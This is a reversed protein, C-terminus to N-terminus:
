REEGTPLTYPYLKILEDLTLKAEEETLDRQYVIRLNKNGYEFMKTDRILQPRTGLQNQIYVLYAM